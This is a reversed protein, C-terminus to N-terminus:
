AAGKGALKAVVLTALAREVKGPLPQLFSSVILDTITRGAGLVIVDFYIKRGSASAVVRYAATRRLGTSLALTGKSLVSVKIGRAALAAFTEAVCTALSPTVARGWWANAQAPTAYVSVNQQVFPGTAAASFAPSSAAGTEVIGKANPAHGRCSFRVGQQSTAAASTWGKGFDALRLLAAQAAKTGASTHHAAPTGAALLIALLVRV